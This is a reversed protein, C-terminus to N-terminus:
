PFFLMIASIATLIKNKMATIEKRQNGGHRVAYLYGRQPVKQASYRVCSVAAMPIAAYISCVNKCAYLPELIFNYDQTHTVIAVCIYYAGMSMAMQFAALLILVTFKALCLKARSVPLSQIRSLVM